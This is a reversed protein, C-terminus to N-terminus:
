QLTKQKFNINPLLIIHWALLSLILPDPAVQHHYHNQHLAPIMACSSPRDRPFLSRGSQVPYPVSIIPIALFAIARGYNNLTDTFPDALPPRAPNTSHLIPYIAADPSRGLTYCHGMAIHSFNGGDIGYYPCM